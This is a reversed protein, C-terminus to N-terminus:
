VYEGKRFAITNKVNGESDYWEWVGDKKGNKYIEKRNLKGDRNYYEWM